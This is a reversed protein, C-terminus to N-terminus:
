TTQALPRAWPPALWIAQLTSPVGSTFSIGESDKHVTSFHLFIGRCHLAKCLAPPYEKLKATKFRGAEDVGISQTRPVHACIANSRLFTPLDSLNLALLGTRKASDAGLLGRAFEFHQFGPLATIMQMLPLRWISAATEDAPEAPHELAGCGQSIFAPGNCTSQVGLASAWWLAAAEREVVGFHIGM